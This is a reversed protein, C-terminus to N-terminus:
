AVEKELRVKMKRLHVWIDSLDERFSLIEDSVPLGDTEEAAQIILDEVEDASELASTISKLADRIRSERSPAEAAEYREQIKRDEDM